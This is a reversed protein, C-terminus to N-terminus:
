FAKQLIHEVDEDGVAVPNFNIAPDKLAKQAIKGLSDKEVGAESLTRPLRTMKHLTDKLDRIVSVTKEARMEPPTQVYDEAGCLPLLLEGIIDGAVTINFELGHPLFISMAEGHSVGCVGGLAHGLAHVIGVGSNSFAAGAMCAANALCFRGEIDNGNEIVKELNQRILKLASVAHADSLPNKQNCTYAEMAHSMADMATAATVLPPLSLTMRPDLIASDPFLQYSAFLLKKNQAADKILAAYTVESGTGATTPIAIFPKMAAKLKVGILQIIDDAEESIVMNVAKGTDIVSGGGVAIISDCENDRFVAAAANVVSPASDAPVRDYISISIQDNGDLAKKALEVLGAQVVGQDTIILPRRSQLQKLEYPLSDLAKDGSILKVPNYFRFGSSKM